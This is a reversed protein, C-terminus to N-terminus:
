KTLSGVMADFEASAAGITKAPGTLKFFVSGQPGQVIAGRLLFNEKKGSSMMMPGSPALYTGAIQVITVPMGNVEKTENRPGDPKEFQAVWRDINSETDGGVGPGFYFVSCEGGETDGQQPDVVYTAARMQREPGVAWKSPVSWTLGAVTGKAQGLLESNSVDKKCGVTALTLVIVVLLMAYKMFTGKPRSDSHYISRSITSGNGTSILHAVAKMASRM